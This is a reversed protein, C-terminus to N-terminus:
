WETYPFTLCCFLCESINLKAICHPPFFVEAKGISSHFFLCKILVKLFNKLCNQNTRVWWQFEKRKKKFYCVLHDRPHKLIDLKIRQVSQNQNSPRRISLVRQRFNIVHIWLLRILEHYFAFPFFVASRLCKKWDCRFDACIDFYSFLICIYPNLNQTVWNM